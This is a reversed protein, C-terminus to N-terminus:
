LIAADTNIECESIDKVKEGTLSKFRIKLDKFTQLEIGFIEHDTDLQYVSDDEFIAIKFIDEEKHFYRKCKEPESLYTKYESDNYMTFYKKIKELEKNEM